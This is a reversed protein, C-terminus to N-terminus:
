AQDPGSDPGLANPMEDAGGLILDAVSDAAAQDMGPVVHSYVQLTCAAAAHGLRESVVKAPAGAKLAATAYPHRVDHLRIRLLGAALCHKHFLATITDPHLPVGHPWVFLLDIDQGLQRREEAWTHIYVRLAERTAPDLALTREGSRTKTLSEQTKGDVTVRTTTPSVRGYELDM